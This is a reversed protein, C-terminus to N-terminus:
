SHGSVSMPAPDLGSPEGEAATSSSSHLEVSEGFDSSPPLVSSQIVNSGLLAMESGDTRGLNHVAGTADLRRSADVGFWSWNSIPKDFIFYSCVESLDGHEDTVCGTSRSPTQGTAEVEGYFNM